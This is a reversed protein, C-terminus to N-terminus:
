EEMGLVPDPDPRPDEGLSVPPMDQAPRRVALREQRALAARERGAPGPRASILRGLRVAVGVVFLGTILTVLADALAHPLAHLTASVAMAGCGRLVGSLLGVTFCLVVLTIILEVVLRMLRDLM